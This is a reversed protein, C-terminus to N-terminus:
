GWFTPIKDNQILSRNVSFMQSRHAPIIGIKSESLRIGSLTSSRAHIYPNRLFFTGVTSVVTLTIMIIVYVVQGVDGLVFASILNGVVQSGM